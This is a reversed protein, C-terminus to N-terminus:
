PPHFKRKLPQMGYELAIVSLPLSEHSWHRSSDVDRCPRGPRSKHLTNTEEKYRPSYSPAPLLASFSTAGPAGFITYLYMVQVM